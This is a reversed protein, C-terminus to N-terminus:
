GQRNYMGRQERQYRLSHKKEDSVNVHGIIQNGSAARNQIEPSMEEPNWIRLPTQRIQM